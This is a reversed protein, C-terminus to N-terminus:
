ETILKEGEVSIILVKAGAGITFLVIIVSSVIAVIFLSFVDFELSESLLAIFVFSTILPFAIKKLTRFSFINLQINYSREFRVKDRKKLLNFYWKYIILVLIVSIPYALVKGIWQYEKPVGVLGMSRIVDGLIFSLGTALGMGLSFKTKIPKPNDKEKLLYAKHPLFWTLGLLPYHWWKEYLGVFYQEETTKNKLIM